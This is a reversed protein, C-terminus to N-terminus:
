ADEISDPFLEELEAIFQHSELWERAEDDTLPRIDEGGCRSNNGTSKAYKSMAGGEGHIFFAGKKTRYLTEECYNFDSYPINNAWLAISDAKDTSYRKGDIIKIM